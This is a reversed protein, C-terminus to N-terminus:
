LWDQSTNQSSVHFGTNLEEGRELLGGTKSALFKNIGGIGDKEKVVLVIFLLSYKM